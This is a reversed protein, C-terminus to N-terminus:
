ERVWVGSMSLFRGTRMGVIDVRRSVRSVKREERCEERGGRRWDQRVRGFKCVRKLDMMMREV